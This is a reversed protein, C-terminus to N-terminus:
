KATAAEASQGSKKEAIKARVQEVKMVNGTALKLLQEVQEMSLGMVDDDTFRKGSKVKAGVLFRKACEYNTLPDAAKEPEATLERFYRMLNGDIPRVEVIRGALRITTPAALVDLDLFEEAKPM